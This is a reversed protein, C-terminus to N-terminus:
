NTSPGIHGSVLGHFDKIQVELEANEGKSYADQDTLKTVMGLLTQLMQISSKGNLRITEIQISM